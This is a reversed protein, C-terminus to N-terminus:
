VTPSATVSQSDLPELAPGVLRDLGKTSQGFLVDDRFDACGLERLQARIVNIVPEFPKGALEGSPGQLGDV